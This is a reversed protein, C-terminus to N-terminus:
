QLFIMKMIKTISGAQIRYFYVGSALNEPQWTLRHAGASMKRSLLVAIEHGQMDFVTLKVHLSATLSFEIQTSPNFPNPYNQSLSIALPLMASPPADVENSLSHIWALAAKVVTDEGRAVDDRTPWVPEDIELESHSLFVNPNDFRSVNYESIQAIYQPNSLAILWAQSYSAATPKGFFRARAHFKMKFANYDGASVAGPGTLVAIPKDFYSSPNGPITGHHLPITSLRMAFHDNPNSRTATYLTEIHSNFLFAYGQDSATAFGGENNRYDIILGEVEFVNMLSDIAYRFQRDPDGNYWSRVYVYGIKTGAVIGWSVYDGNIQDPMPVNPVPLQEPCVLNAPNTQALTQTAFHLTDGTRYKVIDITDFLHWNMGASILWLHHFSSESGGWGVSAIPLEARLLERYLIKWAIGNYGLLIDGPELALPHDPAVSYIVLSSDPLPTICADFFGNDRWPIGLNVLPMDLRPLTSNNVLSDIAFTHAERLSMAMYNLIAAFRGRSVGRAIETRYKDRVAQSDLDLNQFCAYREDTAQWITDFINLKEVTPLGEGWLSDIAARWSYKLEDLTRPQQWASAPNTIFATLFLCITITLSTRTQSKM